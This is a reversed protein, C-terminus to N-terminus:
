GNNGSHTIKSYCKGPTPVATNWVSTVSYTAAAYVPSLGPDTDSGLLGNAPHDALTAFGVASATLGPYYAAEGQITFTGKTTYRPYEKEIGGSMVYASKPPMINSLEFSDGFGDKIAGKEVEWAEWYVLKDVYVKSGTYGDVDALTLEAWDGRGGNLSWDFQKLEVFTRTVKQVVLGDTANTLTWYRVRKFGGCYDEQNQSTDVAWTLKPDSSKATGTKHSVVASKVTAASFFSM